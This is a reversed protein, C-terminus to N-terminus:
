HGPPAVATRAVGQWPGTALATPPIPRDPRRSRLWRVQSVGLAANPVADDRTRRMAARETTGISCQGAETMVHSDLDPFQGIGKAERIIPLAEFRGRMRALRPSSM